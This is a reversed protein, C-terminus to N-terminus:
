LPKDDYGAFVVADLLWYYVQLFFKGSVFVTEKVLQKLKKYKQRYRAGDVLHVQHHSSIESPIMAMNSLPV